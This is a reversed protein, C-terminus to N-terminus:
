QPLRVLRRIGGCVSNAKFAGNQPHLVVPVHPWPSMAVRIRYGIRAGCQLEPRYRALIVALAIKVTSMGFWYGPCGRPGASFVSYEFPSPKIEAWREPRFRDADAYLNPLRNTLFPSLMVRTGRPIPYGALSTDELAVRFQMPVPPLLRMSERVVADLLSLQAVQKLTDTEGARM